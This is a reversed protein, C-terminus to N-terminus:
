RELCQSCTIRTASEWFLIGLGDGVANVWEHM